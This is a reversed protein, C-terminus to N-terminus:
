LARALVTAFRDQAARAATSAVPNGNMVVAFVYGEGAYGALASSRDTTGTKARVTGRAPKQELRDELTGNVGAVALSAVFPRAIRADARASVLLAALGRATLRDLRSLGSGDVIRINALPVDREALERRVVRAGAATTGRGLEAAGLAKLLMEAVFNDSETNMHDVLRAMTPSTVRALELAGTAAVGVSAKRRVRVGARELAHEFASAAALAPLDVVRGGAVARDVVLASLPPSEFKYYSPKWGPATRRADFYSEDGLVRGSVTEIGAARVQAALRDLDDAHLSPDGFGKLVLDGRWRVGDQAGNGLVVTDIRFGPGLEDLVAVAVALKQTSAPLFAKGPNRSFVVRGSGLEIAVAGTSSLRVGQEHLAGALSGPLPAGESRASAPVPAALGLALSVALLRAARIV